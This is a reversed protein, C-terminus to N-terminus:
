TPLKISYEHCSPVEGRGSDGACRKVREGCEYTRYLCFFLLRFIFHPRTLRCGRVKVGKKRSEKLMVANNSGEM